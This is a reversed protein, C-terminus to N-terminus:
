NDHYCNKHSDMKYTYCMQKTCHTIQVTSAPPPYMSASSIPSNIWGFWGNYENTYRDGWGNMWGDMWGDMWEDMWEDMWGDM